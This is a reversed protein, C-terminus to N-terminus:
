RGAMSPHRRRAWQCDGCRGARETWEHITAIDTGGCRTCVQIALQRPDCEM